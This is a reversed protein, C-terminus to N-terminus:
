KAFRIEKNTRLFINQGLTLTLHIYFLSTLSLSRTIVSNLPRPQHTNVTPELQQMSRMQWSCLLLSCLSHETQQVERQRSTHLRRTGCVLLGASAPVKTLINERRSVGNIIIIIFPGFFAANIAVMCEALIGIFWRVLQLLNYASMLSHNRAPLYEDVNCSTGM